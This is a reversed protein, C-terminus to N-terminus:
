SSLWVLVAALAVWLVNNLVRQSRHGPATQPHIAGPHTGRAQM